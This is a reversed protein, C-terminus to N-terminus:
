RGRRRGARRVFPLDHLHEVLFFHLQTLIQLPLDFPGLKPYLLLPDEVLEALLPAALFSMYSSEAYEVVLLGPPLILVLLSPIILTQLASSVPNFILKKFLEAVILLRIVVLPSSGVQFSKITFILFLYPRV